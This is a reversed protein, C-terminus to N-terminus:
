GNCLELGRFGTTTNFKYTQSRNFLLRLQGVLYKNTTKPWYGKSILTM